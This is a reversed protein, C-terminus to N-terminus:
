CGCGDDGTQEDSDEDDGGSFGDDDDDAADDDAADDDAADDDAADDDDDTATDDNDDDDDDDAFEDMGSADGRAVKLSGPSGVRYAITVVDDSDVVLSCDLGTQAGSEIEYIHWRAADRYAYRLMGGEDYYCVHPQGAGDLALDLPSGAWGYNDLNGREWEADLGRAYKLDGNTFDYYALHGVGDGDIAFALDWGLADDSEAGDVVFFVWTEDHGRALRLDGNADDYYAIYSLTPSVVAISTTQGGVKTDTDIYRYFYDAPEWWLYILDQGTDDIYSIRPWGRVDPAMSNGVGIAGYQDLILTHWDGSDRYAYRVAWQEAYEARYVVHPDDGTDTYIACDQGVNVQNVADVVVVNWDGGVLEAVTLAGLAQDYYCISPRDAPGVSVDTKYGTDGTDVTEIDFAAHAAVALLLTLGIAMLWRPM